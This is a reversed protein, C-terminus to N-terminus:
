KRNIVFLLGRSCREDKRSNRTFHFHPFGRERAQGEITTLNPFLETNNTDHFFMLGDQKVIRSHQDFWEHSHAHDADSILLDYTDAPARSVFDKEQSCVINVGAARFDRVVPPEKGLTDLWSDVTTLSGRQNYNLAHVLSSTLYGSGMGLELIADPKQALVSGVIFMNHSRDMAVLKRDDFTALLSFYPALESAPHDKMDADQHRVFYHIGSWKGRLFRRVEFLRNLIPQPWVSKFTQILHSSTM